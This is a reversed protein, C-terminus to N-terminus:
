TMSQSSRTSRSAQSAFQCSMTSKSTTGTMVDGSAAPCTAGRSQDGALAWQFTRSAALALEGDGRSAGRASPRKPQEVVEAVHRPEAPSAPHSGHLPETRDEWLLERLRLPLLEPRPIRLTRQARVM